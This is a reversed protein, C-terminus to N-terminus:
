GPQGQGGPDPQQVQGDGQAGVAAEANPVERLKFNSVGMGDAIKRIVKSAAYIEGHSKMVTWSALVDEGSDHDKLMGMAFSYIESAECLVGWVTQRERGGPLKPMILKNLEDVLEGIDKVVMTTPDYFDQKGM